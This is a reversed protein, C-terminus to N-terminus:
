EIVLSKIYFGFADTLHKVMRNKVYTIDCNDLCETPYILDYVPIELETPLDFNKGAPEWEIESVIFKPQNVLSENWKEYLVNENDTQIKKFGYKECITNPVNAAFHQWNFQKHNKNYLKFGEPTVVFERCADKIAQKLDINQKTVEIKIALQPRKQMCEDTITYTGCPTNETLQNTKIIKPMHGYVEKFLDSFLETEDDSAIGLSIRDLIDMLHAKLKINDEVETKHANLINALEELNNAGGHPLDWDILFFEVNQATVKGYASCPTIIATTGDDTTVTIDNWHSEKEFQEKLSEKTFM